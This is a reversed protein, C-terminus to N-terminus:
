ESKSNWKWARRFNQNEAELTTTAWREGKSLEIKVKDYQQDFPLHYIRENTQSNINCKICPYNRNMPINRIEVGLIQAFEKATESLEATAIMVAKINLKKLDDPFLNKQNSTTKKIYDLYYKMTTGYLQTIHNERIPIGKSTSWYKCQIILIEDNKKCILDRGLDQKLEEIGHYQVTYGDKEFLYGIYREYDRGLQWNDKDRRKWYRELAQQNREISTLNNYEDKTLYFSVPDKDDETNKNTISNILEDSNIGVYDRLWPFLSEYYNIIHKTIQYEKKFRRKEEASKKLRESLKIAPRKKIVLFEAMMIDYNAYYDAIGKALSPFGVTKEEILIKLTNKFEESYKELKLRYYEANEDKQKALSEQELKLRQKEKKTGQFYEICYKTGKWLLWIGLSAGLFIKFNM